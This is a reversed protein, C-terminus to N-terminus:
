KLIDVIRAEGKFQKVLKGHKNYIFSSPAVTKGFIHDFMLDKDELFVINQYGSLGYEESFLKIASSDAHSVFLLQFNNFSDIQKSIATAQEQCFECEPHFYIILVPMNSLLNSNTFGKGTATNNFTFPPMIEIQAVMIEKQKITAFIKYVMFILFCVVVLPIIIKLKQKM